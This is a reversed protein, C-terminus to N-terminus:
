TWGQLDAILHTGVETYVCVKGGSGLKTVVLNPSTGGAIHNLNSANPMPEGCPWVTVFGAASGDAATMNLVVADADAPVGGVGAVQLEVVQGAVPKAGQYGVQGFGRTELIRVPTRAEYGGVFWGQLDAILHTGVETYVCVKGGSGLKTVVLNPSTGGAIHNLNSANPMPEGCPWVTVFGAASGDAATMNLVVADADAPVGGVGAVQLEVVQGAVPKAGQYGVQGFGRPRWSGDPTRAEYGGM